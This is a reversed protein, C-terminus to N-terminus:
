LYKQNNRLWLIFGLLTKLGSADELPINIDKSPSPLIKQLVNPKFYPKTHKKYKEAEYRILKWGENDINMTRRYYLKKKWSGKIKNIIGSTFRNYNKLRHKLQYKLTPALVEPNASNNDLPITALEPFYQTVLQKQTRREWFTALPMGFMLRILSRDLVPLIPWTGFSMQWLIGGLHFRARHSLGFLLVRKYEQTACSYYNKRLRDYVSQTIDSHYNLYLLHNIQEINLGWRNIKEFLLHFTNKNKFPQLPKNYGKPGVIYDLIFGSIVKSAPENQRLIQPIAWYNATNFGSLGHTWRASINAYQTFKEFPIEYTKHPFDLIRVAKKAMKMETDNPLGLTIATIDQDRNKLYGGLMRSDLGGSFLLSYPDGPPAHREITQKMKKYVIDVQKSFPVGYYKNSFEIKYQQLEEIEGETNGWLLHGARLRHTNKWLTLGEVSHMTMLMGILGELSLKSKFSPHYKFLEPSSAVLIVNDYTYYYFPFLGLIDGGARLGYKKNFVVSAYYGDYFAKRAQTKTCWHNMFEGATAKEKSNNKIPDGFVVAIGNNNQKIDLPTNQSIEWILDFHSVKMHGSKLGEIPALKPIVQDIYKNRRNENVDYVALFNAM